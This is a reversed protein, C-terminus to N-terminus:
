ASALYCEVVDQYLLVNFVTLVYLLLLKGNFGLFSFGALMAFVIKLFEKVKSPRSLKNM